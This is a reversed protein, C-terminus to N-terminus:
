SCLQAAKLRGVLGRKGKVRGCFAALREEFAPLSGGHAAADRLKLLLDVAEDYPRAGRRASLREVLAWAQEERAALDQLEAIRQNEATRVEQAHSRIRAEEAAALLQATTRRPGPYTVPVGAIERLRRLLAVEVLPEGRAIRLLYADAEYRPLAEVARRADIESLEVSAPTRLAAPPGAFGGEEADVQVAEAPLMDSAGSAVALLHSDVEFLELFAELEPTLDRLGAPVPPELTADEADEPTLSKLWALYLVRYDGRLISMRLPVLSPLWREAEVWGAGADRLFHIDLLAYDGRPSWIIRRSLPDEYARVQQLDILSAPFRFMLRKDGWGTLHIMADFHQLVVASPEAKFSGATYTFAARAPTLEVSHSIRRMASQQASTLPQDLAQFEFYQYESM